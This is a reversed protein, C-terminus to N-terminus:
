RALMKRGFRILKLKNYLNHARKKLNPDNNDDLLAIQGLILDNLEQDDVEIQM